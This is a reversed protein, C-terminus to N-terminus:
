IGKEFILGIREAVSPASVESKESKSDVSPHDISDNVLQSTDQTATLPLNEEMDTSVLQSFDSSSGIDAPIRYALVSKPSSSLSSNTSVQEVISEPLITSTTPDNVRQSVGSVGFDITSQDEKNCQTSTPNDEGDAPKLISQIGSHETLRESDRDISEFDEAPDKINVLPDNVNYTIKAQEGSKEPSNLSKKEIYKSSESNSEVAPQSLDDIVIQKGKEAGSDRDENSKLDELHDIILFRSDNVNCTDDVGEISKELNILSESIINSNSKSNSGEAPESLNSIVEQRMSNEAGVSRNEGSKLGERDHYTVIDDADCNANMEEASNGSANLSEQPKQFSGESPKHAMSDEMPRIRELSHEPPFVDLSNSPGQEREEGVLLKVYNSNKPDFNMSHAQDEHSIEARSSSLSWMSPAIPDEPENRVRSFGEETADKGEVEYLPRPSNEHEQVKPALPSAGWLEESGSTIENESDGDYILSESDNSSATGDATLPPSGIESVEVQMDSAISNTPTHWPDKQKYFFHEEMRTNDIVSPSSDYSPEAAARAKPVPCPLPLSNPARNHFVEPFKFTKPQLSESNEATKANFIDEASSSPSSCIKKHKIADTDMQIDSRDGLSPDKDHSQEMKKGRLEIRSTGVERDRERKNTVQNSSQAEETVLDTASLNRSLTEGGQFLLHDVLPDHNAKDLQMKSRSYGSAGYQDQTNELPFPNGLSFSEHRCFLLEKLQEAMFEKQFSDAMLNPKEEFPDYPLDFPNQTPLLISPASGPVRDDPSKSAHFTNSRAVLVPPVPGPAASSSMKFSKRARRRAILSELRKNRELESDGLDMVNKQDYETWEVAKEGGKESEEEEDDDAESSSSESGVDGGVHLKAPQENSGNCSVTDPNSAEGFEPIKEGISVHHSSSEGSNLACRETEEMIVKPKEEVMATRGIFDDNSPTSSVMDIEEEVAHADSEEVNKNVKRQFVRRAEISSNDDRNAADAEDFASKAHEKREDVGHQIKTHQSNLYYYRIFVATCGLFVSSYILFYFVSPLFLYLVLLSLSVGSAFPYKQAFTSCANISFKLVGWMFAQFKKSDIGM